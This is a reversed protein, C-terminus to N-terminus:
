NMSIPSCTRARFSTHTSKYAKFHIVAPPCRKIQRELEAVKRELMMRVRSCEELQSSGAGNGLESVTPSRVSGGAAGLLSARCGPPGRPVGGRVGWGGGLLHGGAASEATGLAFRPV